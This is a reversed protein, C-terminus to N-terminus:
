ELCKIATCGVVGQPVAICGLFSAEVYNKADPRWFTELRKASMFRRPLLFNVPEPDKVECRTVVWDRCKTFPPAGYYVM